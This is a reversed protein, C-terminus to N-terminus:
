RARNAVPQNNGEGPNNNNHAEDENNNEEESESESESEPGIRPDALLIRAAGLRVHRKMDWKGSPYLGVSRREQTAENLFDTVRSNKDMSIDVVDRGLIYGEGTPNGLILTRAEVDCIGIQIYTNYRDDERYM